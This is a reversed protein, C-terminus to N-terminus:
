KRFMKLMRLTVVFGGVVNITAVLTAIAALIWVIQISSGIQLLAGIVIIGSIANTVSMLPTHLSHSVNWVVHYGVICSLLFVTFHSLFNGPAVQAMWGFLAVAVVMMLYKFMPSKPKEEVVPAAVVAKQQPTASVQIPPPPWTIEGARVVTVGRAIEDEFDIEINGDKQKCLLKM